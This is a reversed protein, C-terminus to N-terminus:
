FGLLHFLVFSFVKCFYEDVADDFSSFEIFEQDQHQRLRLPVFELFNVTPAPNATVSQDSINSSRNGATSSTLIFGPQGPTNLTELLAPARHLQNKLNNVKEVTMEDMVAEVKGSPNVGALLLCHDVIEGGLFAVSSERHLLLQRYTMKRVKSKKTSMEATTTSSGSSAQEVKELAWRQFTELSSWMPGGCIDSSTTAETTSFSIPYIEGVKLSVDADFQHSRLLALVEYNCDTLVINGNAYMELIIHNCSEGTGFKFDVVRDGSLQHVDELRKTRIYKRLKMSFPSPMDNKERAFKTTHFRIGSEMLLMAKSNGEVGSVVNFKFLYTKDNLDYVNAVRHGMVSSRIDRVMAQVDSTSFRTKTM